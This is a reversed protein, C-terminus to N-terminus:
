DGVSLPRRRLSWSRLSRENLGRDITMATVRFTIGKFDLHRTIRNNTWEEDKLGFSNRRQQPPKRTVIDEGIRTARLSKCKIKIGITDVSSVPTNSYDEFKRIRM